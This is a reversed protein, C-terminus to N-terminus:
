KRGKLRINQLVSITYIFAVRFSVFPHVFWALDRIKIFGKVADKLPIIFTSMTIGLRIMTAVNMNYKYKRYVNESYFLRINRKLKNIFHNITNSHRHIVSDKLMIYTNNGSIVLEMNTDMHYLYPKWSVSLILDKKVLFGQSGITLLNDKNFKIKWYSDTENLVEGPLIWNNETQMLKDRRNLYFVTPDNIAYLAAYRNAISDQKDYNFYAAQGGVANEAIVAEVLTHLWKTNPLRNDDDILFLFEGSAHEVGISKGREINHTGNRYVKCGMKKALEVTNDTSDDDVVIYEIKEQPYTQEMISQLCDPLRSSSNYCPIIVSITPLYEKSLM